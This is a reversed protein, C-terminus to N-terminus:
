KVQSFPVFATTSNVLSVSREVHSFLIIQVNIPRFMESTM